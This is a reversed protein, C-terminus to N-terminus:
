NHTDKAGARVANIVWETIKDLSQNISEELKEKESTSFKSLVYDKSETENDRGVGVRLRHFEQTGVQDIINQVGNHRASGKGFGLKTEGLPLDMEDHVILLHKDIEFGRNELSKIVEKLLEGSKNMFTLPKLIGAHVHYEYEEDEQRGAPLDVDLEYEVAAFKKNEQRDLEFAHLHIGHEHEDIMESSRKWENDLKDLVTFGVNHRTGGYEKGPNGLGVILLM